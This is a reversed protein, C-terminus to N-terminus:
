GLARTGSEPAPVLSCGHFSEVIGPYQDVAVVAEPEAVQAAAARDRVRDDVAELAYRHQDQRSRRDDAAEVEQGADIENADRADDLQVVAFVLRETQVDVEVLRHRDARRDDLLRGLAKPGVEEEDVLLRETQLALHTGVSLISFARPVVSTSPRRSMM